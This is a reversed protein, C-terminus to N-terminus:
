REGKLKVKKMYCEGPNAEATDVNQATARASSYPVWERGRRNAVTPTKKGKGKTKKGGCPFFVGQCPRSSAGPCRAWREARRDGGGRADGFGLGWKGLVVVGGQGVWGLRGELNEWQEGWHGGENGDAKRSCQQKLLKHVSSATVFLRGSQLM